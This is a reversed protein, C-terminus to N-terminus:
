FWWSNCWLFSHFCVSMSKMKLRKIYWLFVHIHLIWSPPEWHGVEVVLHHSCIVSEMCLDPFDKAAGVVLGRRMISFSLRRLARQFKQHLPLQSLHLINLFCLKDIFIASFDGRCCNSPFMVHTCDFVQWLWWCLTLVDDGDDCVANILQIWRSRVTPLSLYVVIRGFNWVCVTLTYRCLDQSAVNEKMLKILGMRVEM